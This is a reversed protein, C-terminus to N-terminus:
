LTRNYCFTQMIYLNNHHYYLDLFFLLILKIKFHGIQGYIFTIFSMSPTNVSGHVCQFTQFSWTPVPSLGLSSEGRQKGFTSRDFPFPCFVLHVKVANNVLVKGFTSGHFLLESQVNKEGFLFNSPLLNSYIM